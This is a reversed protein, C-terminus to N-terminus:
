PIGESIRNPERVAGPAGGRSPWMSKEGIIAGGSAADEFDEDEGLGGLTLVRPLLAAGGLKESIIAEFETLNFESVVTLKFREKIM